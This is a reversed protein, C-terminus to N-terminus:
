IFVPKAVFHYLRITSLSSCSAHYQSMNISMNVTQYEGKFVSFESNFDPDDPPCTKGHHKVSVANLSLILSSWVILLQPFTKRRWFCRVFYFLFNNWVPHTTICHAKSHQKRSINLKSKAHLMIVSHQPRKMAAAHWYPTVFKIKNLTLMENFLSPERFM